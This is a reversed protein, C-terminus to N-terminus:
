SDLSPAHTSVTHSTISDVAPTPKSLAAGFGKAPAPAGNQPATGNQEAVGNQKAPAPTTEQTAPSSAGRAFGGFGRRGSGGSSGASITKATNVKTTSQEAGYRPKVHLNYTTKVGNEWAAQYRQSM